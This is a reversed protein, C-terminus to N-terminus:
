GRDSIQTSGASGSARASRESCCRVTTPTTAPPASETRSILLPIAVLLAVLAAAAVAVVWPRQSRIRGAPAPVPRVADLRDSIEDPTLPAQNAVMDGYYTELQTKLGTSM